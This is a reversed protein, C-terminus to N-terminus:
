FYSNNFFCDVNYYFVKSNKNFTLKKYYKIAYDINIM